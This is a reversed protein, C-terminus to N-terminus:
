KMLEQGTYGTRGPFRSSTLFLSFDQIIGSLLSVQKRTRDQLVAKRRSWNEWYKKRWYKKEFKTLVM